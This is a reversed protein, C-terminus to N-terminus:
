PGPPPEYRATRKPSEIVAATATAEAIHRGSEDRLTGELFAISRGIELARGECYLTGPKAPSLFSVRIDLTPFALKLRAKAAAATGMTEDLMATLLGGHVLHIPNVFQPTATFRVLATGAACDVSVIDTGILMGSGSRSTNKRLISLIEDDTFERM